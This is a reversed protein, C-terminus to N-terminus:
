ICVRKGGEQREERRGRKWMRSCLNEVGCMEVIVDKVAYGCECVGRCVIMM